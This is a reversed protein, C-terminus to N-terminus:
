HKIGETTEGSTFGYVMADLREAVDTMVERIESPWNKNLTHDIPDTNDWDRTYAYATAALGFILMAAVFLRIRKM